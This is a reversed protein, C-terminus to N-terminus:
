PWASTYHSVVSATPAVRGPGYEARSWEIYSGDYLHVDRGLYRMVFYTVSAQMGTRCYTIIVADDRVGAHRYLQGLEDAGKFVPMATSTLNMQWPVNIANPIHGPCPVDAEADAGLYQSPSRADIVALSSPHIEAQAVAARMTTLRVVADARTQATFASPVVAPPAGTEMPRNESKWKMFGGDLLSLRDGLGLYDFTFFARSAHIVDRSYLIIRGRNPIGAASLTKELAPLDPLENPTSNRTVLLESLAVFRAEAIHGSEYTARDGIEVVTVGPAKLYQQLWGTSVLLQQHVTGAAALTAALWLAASLIGIPRRM